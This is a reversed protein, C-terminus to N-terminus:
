DIIDFRVDPVADPHVDTTTRRRALPRASRGGTSTRRRTSKPGCWCGRSAPKEHGRSTRSTSAGRSPSPRPRRGSCRSRSTARMSGRRRTAAAGRCARWRWMLFDFWGRACAVQFPQAEGFYGLRVVEASAAAALTWLLSSRMTQGHSCHKNTPARAAESHESTPRTSAVDPRKTALVGQLAKCDFPSDRQVPNQRM